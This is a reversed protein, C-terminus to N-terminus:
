SFAKSFRDLFGKLKKDTEDSIDKELRITELIDAGNARIDDLLSQEFRGVSEAPIGDLYGNVGAYISIVQEEVPYPVFQGQKLVETLREGRALLRQTSADLDSAFQSFAAM